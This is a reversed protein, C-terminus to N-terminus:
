QPQQIRWHGLPVQRLGVQHGDDRFGGVFSTVESGLPCWDDARYREPTLGEMVLIELLAPFGVGLDIWAGFPSKAVVTGTVTQGVALRQTSTRKYTSNPRFDPRSLRIEAGYGPFFEAYLSRIGTKQDM